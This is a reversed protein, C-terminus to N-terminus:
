PTPEIKWVFGSSPMGPLMAEDVTWPKNDEIGDFLGNQGIM